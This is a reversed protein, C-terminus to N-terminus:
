AEGQWAFRDLAQHAQLLTQQVVDSPDLKGRLRPDLQLRALLRLYDRYPELLGGPADPERAMLAERTSARDLDKGSSGLHSYHSMFGVVKTRAKVSASRCSSCAPRRQESANVRRRHWIRKALAEPWPGESIARLRPQVATDTRLAM